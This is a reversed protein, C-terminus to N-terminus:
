EEDFTFIGCLPPGWQRGTPRPAKLLTHAASLKLQSGSSGTVSRLRPDHVHRAFKPEIGVSNGRCNNSLEYGLCGRRALSPVM